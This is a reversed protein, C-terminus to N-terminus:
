NIKQHRHQFDQMFSVVAHVDDLSIANYLSIRIGGVSRHGRLQHLGAKEGDKVFQEELTPSSLRVIVNMRSRFPETIPCQYFGNSKKICDWLEQAKINNYRGIQDMTGFQDELWVMMREVVYIAFAPPTNYLSHHKDFVRYDLMTPLPQLPMAPLSSRKAIIVTVGATGFNKQATAFILDFDDVDVPRSLFNSCMDCILPCDEYGQKRLVDKIWSSHPMEIGDITENDCYYIYRVQNAPPLNWNAFDKIKGGEEFLITETVQFTPFGTILKRAEDAAKRSWAGSILYHIKGAGGQSLLNLPIAGFQQSGGGAMFIIAHDDTIGMLRRLQQQISKIFRDFESSRHSVELIGMGTHHWNFIDKRIQQLVKVPLQAPGAGFNIVRSM